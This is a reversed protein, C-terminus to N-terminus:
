IFYIVRDAIDGQVVLVDEETHAGTGLAKRVERALAELQVAAPPPALLVRIVRDFWREIWRRRLATDPNM